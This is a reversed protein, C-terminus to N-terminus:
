DPNKVPRTTATDMKTTDASMRDSAAPDKKMTTDETADKKDSDSNNCATAIFLLLMAGSIIQFALKPKKSTM